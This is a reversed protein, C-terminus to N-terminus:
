ADEEGAPQAERYAAEDIEEVDPSSIFREILGSFEGVCHHHALAVYGHSGDGFTGDVPWPEGARGNPQDLAAIVELRIANLATLEVKFYRSM